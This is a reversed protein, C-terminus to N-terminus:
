FSVLARFIAECNAAKYILLHGADAVEHYRIWPLREAIYRNLEFPFIKDEYGQWMHVYGENNPFPNSIDTPEFEWKGFSVILDRHLSEHAGQQQVKEQEENPPGDLHRLIEVDSPSFAEESSSLSPIWKQTLWWHLLWPAYHAVTFAWRNQPLLRSPGIKSLKAPFCHWWYNAVPVVLAAGSLRHPIYKLCGYVPYAGLSIGIVYFKPGLQLKEALEQIDFADSKVSRKPNPDSEGYGARDFAVLYIELEKLLEQEENQPGDLHELIELDSPSFIDTKGELISMSPIWKRTLWWHLLWPAYHAVTFTWRDQPVLGSLGKKSLEAPFCRWWYNILPVVLAAGSLRHPIYKLCGYVPYAGISIGIVYFKLGLQLKDALEQIDFADSKVSRKPNPDSEGYGARDFAVLYIELEKLVEESIRLKFGKSDGFAHVLIIKHKAQEKPLGREKYALHRGDGLRVRPSTVPPGGPSGCIKPSPPRLAVYVYGLVGVVLGVAIRGIM